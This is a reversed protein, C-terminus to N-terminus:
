VPWISVNKRVERELHLKKNLIETFSEEIFGKKKEESAEVLSQLRQLSERLQKELCTKDQKVKEVEHSVLRLKENLVKHLLAHDTV